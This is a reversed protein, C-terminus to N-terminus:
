AGKRSQFVRFELIVKQVERVGFKQSHLLTLNSSNAVQM